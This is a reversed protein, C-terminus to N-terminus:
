PRGGEKMAEAVRKPGDKTWDTLPKELFKDTQGPRHQYSDNEHQDLAYFVEGNDGGYGITAAVEDGIQIPDSVAGSDHLAGSLYPVIEQSQGLVEDLEEKLAGVGAEIMRPLLASAAREFVDFGVVGVTIEDAM